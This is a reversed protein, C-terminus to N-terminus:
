PNPRTHRTHRTGPKELNIEIRTLVTISVRTLASVYPCGTVGTVRDQFGNKTHRTPTSNESTAGPTVPQGPYGFKQSPNADSGTVFGDCGPATVM